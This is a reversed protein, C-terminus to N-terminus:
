GTALGLEEMVDRLRALARLYRKSAASTDIGLEQAVEANSLQEFHRLCLVERDPDRLEELAERLRRETEHRAAAMSPSTVAATLEAAMLAASATSRGAPDFRVERRVDRRQAGVHRRYLAAIRQFALFRLWLFFPMDPRAVYDDFRELAEVRVEQLVDSVGLRGLLRPSMRVKVMRALRREHRALLRGLASRDGAAARTLLPDDTDTMLPM